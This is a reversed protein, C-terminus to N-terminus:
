YTRFKLTKFYLWFLNWSVSQLLDTQSVNNFTLKGYKKIIITKQLYMQPNEVIEEFCLQWKQWTRLSEKLWKVAKKEM